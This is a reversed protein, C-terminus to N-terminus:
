MDPEGDVVRSQTPWRDLSLAGGPLAPNARALPCDPAHKDAALEVAREIAARLAAFWRRRTPFLNDEGIVASAGSRELVESLDPTMGVLVLHRGRAHLLDAIAILEEAVSLDLGTARKVRLILVQLRPSAVVEDLARRLESASGFFLPGEVHLLRIEDCRSTGPALRQGLAQEQLRGTEDVVLEHVTLLRAKRLFKVLSVGVGLYIAQDLSLTWTGLMTALFALGDGPSTRLTRRIRPVDVLDWAVVLLLGALSPIPTHDLLWALALLVVIMLLGTIVGAARTRAGLRENLASRSLSGSVPYGGTLAAALNALGQGLFERRADLQDGTRAAISRAVANSEVLSLVTCAFAVPLLEFSLGLSPWTLPPLGTPIPSLDSVVRLGLRELGFGLNVAIGLLTVVLAAPLKAVIRSARGGRGSALRARARRSALRLLIVTLVTGGAFGLALPDAGPLAEFWGGVTTWIRGSPGETATVNHLQGIGILLGAGTIYGLVTPSSIYDVIASLRLATAVLQFLAVGFALAIAVEMPDHASTGIVAAGVLLSLANTPGVVVHRSSRFLSGVITPLAAAYLGAAPPLGAITAYALGQPIALFLVVTAAMADPGFGALRDRITRRGKSM